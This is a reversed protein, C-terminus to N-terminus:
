GHLGAELRSKARYPGVPIQILCTKGRADLGYIADCHAADYGLLPHGGLGLASAALLLRQMLMGAEMQQIRYGRYGLAKRLHSRDGVVHFCLPVQYLNVNDLSMGQQLRLRHDGGSLQRLAHAPRDYAYAGDPLGDVGHICGYLGIRDRPEGGIGDLDNAFAPFSTGSLLGSLQRLGVPGAMFDLDPSVRNRCASALDYVCTELPLLALRGGQLSSREPTGAPRSPPVSELRSAENMRILDPYARIKRSRLFSGPRIAPLERCLEASAPAEDAEMRAHFWSAAPEMSLPIVAYVSEEQEPLGLLHNLARDPFQFCVGSAYGFREAVVQLQGILAGADLGQLRYSFNHYKFFNKWFVTSVFAAGFCASLDCRNGLARTLWSDFCGERLLILRHHAADYHYVGAPLGEVRLYVYLESPYLAGGSPVFRRYLLLPGSSSGPFVPLHASQGARTLGYSYWLVYGVTRPEPKAPARRGDLSLPVDAALPIQPLGRYLKYPLPADEWDVEWEPPRARDTDFHLEHLFTDLSM